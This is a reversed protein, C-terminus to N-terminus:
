DCDKSAKYGPFHYETTMYVDPTAKVTVYLPLKLNSNPFITIPSVMTMWPNPNPPDQRGQNFNDTFNILLFPRQEQSFPTVMPLRVPSHVVSM